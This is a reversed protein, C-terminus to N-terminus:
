AKPPEHLAVRNGESDEFHAMFGFEGISTRPIITKGGAKNIEDLAPDIAEVSLYVTTGGQSPEVSPIHILSGGAGPLGREHPFFAMDHQGFHMPELQVGFATEYFKIARSMDRVAIEFWNVPNPHLTMKCRETERIVLQIM